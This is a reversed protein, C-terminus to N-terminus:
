PTRIAPPHIFPHALYHLNSLQPFRVGGASDKVVLVFGHRSGAFRECKSYLTALSVGHQEISYALTWDTSLQLRPPLLLRIEEAVTRTLLQYRPNKHGRLSLGTLPPPAFPSATRKPVQYFGNSTTPSDLVAGGNSQQRKHMSRLPSPLQPETLRRYLASAVHSVPYALYSTTSESSQTRPLSSHESSQRRDTSSAM